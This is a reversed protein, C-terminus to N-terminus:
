LKKFKNVIIIILDVLIIKLYAGKRNASIVFVGSAVITSLM